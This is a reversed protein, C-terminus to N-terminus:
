IVISSLLSKFLLLRSDNLLNEESELIHVEHKLHISCQKIPAVNEEQQKFEKELTQQGQNQCLM